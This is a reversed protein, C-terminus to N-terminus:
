RNIRRRIREELGEPLRADQFRDKMLTDVRRSFELKDCCDLCAELHDELSKLEEGALARDLYLFFQRVADECRLGNLREMDEGPRAAQRM